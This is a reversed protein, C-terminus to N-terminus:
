ISLYLTLYLSLHITLHNSPQFCQCFSLYIITRVLWSLILLILFLVDTTRRREVPGDFDKNEIIKLKNENINENSTTDITTDIETISM